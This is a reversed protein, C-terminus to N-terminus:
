NDSRSFVYGFVSVSDDLGLSLTVIIKGAANNSIRNQRIALPSPQRTPKETTLAMPAMTKPDTARMPNVKTSIVYPEARGVPPAKSPPHSGMPTYAFPVKHHPTQGYVASSYVSAAQKMVQAAQAPTPPYSNSSPPTTIQYHESAQHIPRGTTISGSARYQTPTGRIFQEPREASPQEVLYMQPPQDQNRQHHARVPMSIPPRVGPPIRYAESRSPKQSVHPMGSDKPVTLDLPQFANTEKVVSLDLPAGLDASAEERPAAKQQHVREKEYHVIQPPHPQRVGPSYSPAVHPSHQVERPKM